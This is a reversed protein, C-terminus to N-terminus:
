QNLDTFLGNAKVNDKARLNINNRHVVDKWDSYDQPPFYDGNDYRGKIGTLVEMSNTATASVGDDTSRSGAFYDNWPFSVHDWAVIKYLKCNFFDDEAWENTKCLQSRDNNQLNLQKGIQGRFRGAFAGCGIGQITILTRQNEKMANETAYYFSHCWDGKFWNITNIKISEM